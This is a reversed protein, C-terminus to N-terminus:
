TKLALQGGGRGGGDRNQFWEHPVKRVVRNWVRRKKSDMTTTAKAAYMTHAINMAQQRKDHGIRKQHGDVTVRDVIVFILDVLIDDAVDREAPAAGLARRVAQDDIEGFMQNSKATEFIMKRASYALAQENEADDRHERANKSAASTSGRV